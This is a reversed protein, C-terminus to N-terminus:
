SVVLGFPTAGSPLKVPSASLETLDGGDIAFVSVAASGADTVFLFDGEPSVRADFPRLGTPDNFTTNGLLALSGDDQVEFRSISSSGTNIAYVHTGDPTIELWCTGTQRTVFPSGPIATLAGDAAVDFVSVSGYNPGAHANTVYLRSPDAPSFASGFPGTAQPEFPSGDAPTVTGDANVTFSDIASPGEDPGVQVGILVTGDANFLVQGPSATASLPVIANEIPALRGDDLLRFGAYSAGMTGDGANAVYVLDDHVALSIPTTGGSPITGEEVQSLTGSEEIRLVSIESSGADVALLYRGDATIQLAGQSGVITGTGAGGTPFPSGMIPSLSGDAHRDFAAITNTNATNDNVYVHGTIAMQAAAGAHPAAIATISLALLGIGATFRSLHSM